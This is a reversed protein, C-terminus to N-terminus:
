LPHLLFLLLAVKHQQSLYYMTSDVPPTIIERGRYRQGAVGHVRQLNQQAEGGHSAAGEAARRVQHLSQQGSQQRAGQAVRWQSAHQCYEPCSCSVLPWGAYFMWSWETVCFLLIEEKQRCRQTDTVVLFARWECLFEFHSHKLILMVSQRQSHWLRLFRILAFEGKSGFVLGPAEAATTVTLCMIQTKHNEVRARDYEVTTNLFYLCFHESSCHLSMLDTASDRQSVTVNSPAPLQLLAPHKVQIMIDVYDRDELLCLYPYLNLRYDKTNTNVLIMKSERLAQLLIKQWQARQDALLERQSSSLLPPWGDRSLWQWCCLRLSHSLCFLRDQQSGKNIQVSCSGSPSGNCVTLSQLHEGRVGAPKVNNVRSSSYINLRFCLQFIM